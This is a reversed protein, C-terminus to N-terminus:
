AIEEREETARLLDQYLDSLQDAKEENERASKQLQRFLRNRASLTNHILVASIVILSMCIFYDDITALNNNEPLGFGRGHFWYHLIFSGLALALSLYLYCRNYSALAATFIIFLHFTCLIYVALPSFYGVSFVVATGLLGLGISMVGVSLKFFGARIMALVVLILGLMGYALRTIAGNAFGMALLILLLPILMILCATFTKVAADDFDQPHKGGNLFRRVPGIM